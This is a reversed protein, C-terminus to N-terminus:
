SVTLDASKKLLEEIAAHRQQEAYFLATNGVEDQTASNAGAELLLKAVAEHGKAAACILATEGGAQM